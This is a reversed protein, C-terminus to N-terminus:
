RQGDRRCRARLRPDAAARKSPNHTQNGSPAHIDTTLTTHRSISTEAVPRDSTWLLGVSQPTHTHTHTHTHTIELDSCHLPWPGHAQLVM